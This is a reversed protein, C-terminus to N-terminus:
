GCFTTSLDSGTLLVGKPRGRAKTTASGANCAPDIRIKRRKLGVEVATRALFVCGRSIRHDVCWLDGRVAYGDSWQGAGTYDMGPTHQMPGVYWLATLIAEFAKGTGSIVGLALAMSPLFMAGAIWGAFDQALGALLLRVAVGAGTIVAIAFGALFCAPLQRALIRPSSFLLPKTGFRDERTGMASWILVPWLWATGLLPGRAVELPSLFEALLLGAAVVIWWWRAGKIALRFEAFFLQGFNNRRASAAIPSLHFRRGPRGQM